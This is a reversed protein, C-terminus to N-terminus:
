TSSQNRFYRLLLYGGMLIFAAPWVYQAIGALPPAMLGGFVLLVAGPIFAWTRSSGGPLIAVLIFTLGMGLFLIGGNDVGTFSDMVSIVGLTLLVGAPIIAWWRSTDSIYVWVFALSIGGLFALGGFGDLASPLLLSISLGLLTFAPFAAWWNTRDVFLRYLFYLGVLGWVVGWFINGINSIINLNDLLSLAGLFILFGGIWLRPDYRKMM